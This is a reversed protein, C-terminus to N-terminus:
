YAAVVLTKDAIQFDAVYQVRANWYRTDINNWIEFPNDTEGTTPQADFGLQLNDKATLIARHPLDAVGSKTFSRGIYMDWENVVQLTVGRFKLVSTGDIQLTYALEIGNTVAGERSDLLNDWLSQTVLLQHQAVPLGRFTASRLAWMKKLLAIAYGAPLAQGANVSNSNVETIDVRKAKGATVAAFVKKWAGDFTKYYPLEGAVNLAGSVMASDAFWAMRVLDGYAMQSIAQIMFDEYDTGTLDYKQNGEKLMWEFVKGRLSTWCETIHLFLDYPSWTEGTINLPLATGTPGCGPDIITGFGVPDLYYVAQKGKVGEVIKFYDSLAPLKAAPRFALEASEKGDYTKYYQTNISM